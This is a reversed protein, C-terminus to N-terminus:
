NIYGLGRLLERQRESLDMERVELGGLLAKRVSRNATELGALARTMREIAPGREAALNTKEGPDQRLDYVEHRAKLARTITEFRSDPNEIFKWDNTRLCSAYAGAVYVAGTDVPKGAILPLLSRGQIHPLPATELRDFVTPAVDILSVPNKVRRGAFRGGPMRAILPVRILEEYVSNGHNMLGHELFGEGHDGLVWILASDYVGLDRLRQFLRGLHHDAYLIEGDYLALAQELEEATLNMQQKYQDARTLEHIEPKFRAIFATSFPPPAEYTYHADFLHLFLLFPEPRDKNESLWRIAHDVMGEARTEKHPCFYHDFGKAFGYEGDLMPNVFAATRYGAERLKMPLTDPTHSSRAAHVIGHVTPYLSTLLSMHAGVTWPIPTFANEFVVGEGALRDINPTTDRRYGYAGVHDARVTDLSILIVNPRSQTCGCALLAAFATLLNRVMRNSM